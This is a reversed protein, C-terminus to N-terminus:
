ITEEYDRYLRISLLGKGELVRSYNVIEQVATEVSAEMREELFDNSEWCGPHVIGDMILGGLEKDQGTVRSVTRLIRRKVPSACIFFAIIRRFMKICVDIQKPTVNEFM